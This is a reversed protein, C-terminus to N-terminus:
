SQSPPTAPRAAPRAIPKAKAVAVAGATKADLQTMANDHGVAAMSLEHARDREAEMSQHALDLPHTPEPGITEPVPVPLPKTAVATSEGIAAVEKAALQEVMGVVKSNVAALFQQYTPPATAATQAAQHEAQIKAIDASQTAQQAAQQSQQQQRVTVVGAAYAAATYADNVCSQWPAPQESFETTAMLKSLKQYRIKAVVPEEDNARPTFPTYLPPPQQPAPGAMRQAQLQATQPDAGRSTLAAVTQQLTAAHHQQLQPFAHVAEYHQEWDNPPGECWDAICRDIHEEHPSPPLGLDDSMASRFLESADEPEIWKQTQAQALYQAKESPSMMTGSGPMLSVATVGILDAGVFHRSKFASNEGGIKVLQPTKLRAQALQLKIKWYQTVGNIFGQWDQALQVKAQHIAVEKAVGSESYQSDLAQATQNLNALTDMEHEVRDLMEETNAALPPRLEFTPMDDKTLVDIPTGDRRNIDDKTVTSNATLYTNPHLRVDIDELVSLYLHARIENAGGYLSVPPMGMPDGAEPDHLSAFQAVPPEMLVPVTGGDDTEVDERLTDRKLVFGKQTSAGGLQAGNVAIEAGDVYDPAIRCFKHYWFLLTDDTVGGLRDKPRQLEPVISKWRKPKWDTLLKLEDTTMTALCKFRKKAEGLPEWMILIISHAEFATATTPLTRVQNPHILKVRHKPLWERAAEAAHEVFQLAGQGTDDDDGAPEAEAEAVYRLVPDTTRELIPQQNEDLAPQGDPGVVPSMLPNSADTAQPHAKVQMPRWGGATPDIWVFVFASKRTRNLTL